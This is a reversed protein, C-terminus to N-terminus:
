IYSHSLFLACTYTLFLSREFSADSLFMAVRRFCGARASPGQLIGLTVHDYNVYKAILMYKHYICHRQSRPDDNEIKGAMM